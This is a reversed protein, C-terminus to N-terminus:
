WSFDRRFNVSLVTRDFEYLANNSNNNLYSLQPRITWKAIPLYRMGITFDYQHDDRRILFVPDTEDYLRREYGTAAYAVLKYNLVMQGGARVGYIKDGLFDFTSDHTNEEGGYASLFLIPAKDGAFAHAWGAGVIYRDADRIEDNPYELGAGQVFISVQNRDDLDRQWQGTLGNSRRFSESNVNYITSQLAVTYTDINKKYSLGLSFDLANTDFQDTAWNMQNSSNVIGFVSLNKGFPQRFSIGAAMNMFNSSEAQSAGGLNFLISPAIGAAAVSSSSTAANINSDYGVAFDLYAAFTSTLGLSRDIASMYNEIAHSLEESPHQGLVNNFEAKATATEGSMFYAKAIESRAATNNPDTALVRELAFIGRTVKGSEVAAVGFHYDFDVNGARESELPELLNYAESYNGAAILGKANALADSDAAISVASTLTLAIIFLVKLLSRLM